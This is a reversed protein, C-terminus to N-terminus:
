SNSVLITLDFARDTGALKEAGFDWGDSSPFPGWYVNGTQAGTLTAIPTKRQTGGAAAKEYFSFLFQDGAAMNSVDIKIYRSGPGTNTQITTGTASLSVPATGVTLASQTYEIRMSRNRSISM